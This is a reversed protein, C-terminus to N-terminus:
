TGEYRVSRVEVSNSYRPRVELEETFITGDHKYSEVGRVEISRGDKGTRVEFMARGDDALFRVVDFDHVVEDATVPHGTAIKM